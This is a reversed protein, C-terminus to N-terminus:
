EEELAAQAEAEMEKLSFMPPNKMPLSEGTWYMDAKLIRGFAITGLLIAIGGLLVKNYFGQQDAYGDAWPGKPTPLHDYTARNLEEEQRPTLEDHHAVASGARAIVAINTNVNSRAVLARQGVRALRSAPILVKGLM